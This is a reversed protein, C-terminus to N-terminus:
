FRIKGIRQGDPLVNRLLILSFVRTLQSKYEFSTGFILENYHRLNSIYVGKIFNVLFFFLGHFCIGILLANQIKKNISMSFFGMSTIRIKKRM